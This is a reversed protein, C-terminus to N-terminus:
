SEMFEKVYSVFEKKAKELSGKLTCGAANEHGGGGFHKCLLSADINEGTRVSVKFAKEEKQRFTVGILVGEIQKPIGAIGDILSDDAGSKELMELTVYIIALKNDFYFEISDMIYREAIFQEKTKQEFMLKNIKDKEAGLDLIDSTIKHTKSTTNKYRFCGTDTAIGTYLSSAMPTDWQIGMINIIEYVIQATAASDPDVYSYKAFDTNIKHHDICVDVKGFYGKLNPGFLNEGAIDVSIISNAEFDEKKVSNELFSYKKSISDNNIVKAKKGIKQLARCLAFASGLTDGDPYQHTLIYFNDRSKLIEAIKELSVKM